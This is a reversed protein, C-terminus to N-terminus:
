YIILILMLNSSVVTSFGKTFHKPSCQYHFAILQITSAITSYNFEVKLKSMYSQSHGLNMQHLHNLILCPLSIIKTKELNIHSM